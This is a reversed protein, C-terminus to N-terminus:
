KDPIEWSQRFTGPVSGHKGINHRAFHRKRAAVPVPLNTGTTAAISSMVTAEIKTRKRSTDNDITLVKIQFPDVRIEVTQICFLKESGRGRNATLLVMHTSISLRSM